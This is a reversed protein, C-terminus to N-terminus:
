AKKTIYKKCWDNDIHFWQALSSRDTHNEQFAHYSKPTVEFAFLRNNKPAVIKTPETSELTSYMGTGGGVDVGESAVNDLYYLITIARRSLFTTSEPTKQEAADSEEGTIYPVSVVKNELVNKTDFRKLSYDNHVWGTRDGKKHFHLGIATTQDTPRNFLQSFYLNWENSFFFNIPEGPQYTVSFVYGDYPQETDTFAHFQGRTRTEYLGEAKKRNFYACLEGYFEKTFIDDIIVHRYPTDIVQANNVAEMNCVDHMRVPETQAYAHKQLTTAIRHLFNM